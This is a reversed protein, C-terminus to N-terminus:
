PAHVRWRPACAPHHLRATGLPLTAISSSGDAHAPRRRSRAHHARREPPPHPEARAHRASVGVPPRPCCNACRATMRQRWARSRLRASPRLTPGKGVRGSGESGPQLLGRRPSPTGDRAAPHRSSLGVQLYRVDARPETTDASEWQTKLRVECATPLQTPSRVKLRLPTTRLRM